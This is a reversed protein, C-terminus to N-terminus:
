FLFAGCVTEFLKLFLAYSFGLGLHTDFRTAHRTDIKKKLRGFLRFVPKRENKQIADKPTEREQHTTPLPLESVVSFVV